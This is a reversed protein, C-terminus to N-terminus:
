HPLNFYFTTGQGLESEVRIQGGHKEAIKKVVALGMGDGPYDDQEVGRKFIKFIDEMRSERIGIGEDKFSFEWMNSGDKQAKLECAIHIIPAKDKARYLIANQLLHTFARSILVPSGKVRPLEAVEIRASSADIQEKLAEIVGRVLGEMDLSDEVEYDRTNLRSYQRLHELAIRGKEASVIIFGLHRKSKEELVSGNSSLVMEAFGSAHRLPGSLDHSVIYAFDEFEQKLTELEKELTELNKSAM